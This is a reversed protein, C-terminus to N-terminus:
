LIVTVKAVTSTLEENIRDNERKLLSVDVLVRLIWFELTDMELALKPEDVDGGSSKRGAQHSNFAEAAKMLQEHSLRGGVAEGCVLESQVKAHSHKSPPLVKGSARVNARRKNCPNGSVEAERDHNKPMQLDSSNPINEPFYRSTLSQITQSFCQEMKEKIKVQAQNAQEREHEIEDLVAKLKCNLDGKEAKEQSVSKKLETVESEVVDLCEELENVKGQLSANEKM